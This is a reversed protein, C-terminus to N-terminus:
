WGAARGRRRADLAEAGLDLGRDLGVPRRAQEELLEVEGVGAHDVAVVHVRQPARDAVRECASRGTTTWMWVTLPLPKSGASSPPRSPISFHCAALGPEITSRRGAGFFGTGTLSDSAGSEIAGSFSSFGGGGAGGCYVLTKASARTASASRSGRTTPIVAAIAPPVPGRSARRRADGLLVVVDADGLLVRDEEGGAERDLAGLGDGRDVRGEELAGEVLDDVVDAELAEVDDERHVAGPEDAVVARGVVAGEVDGVEARQGVDHQHRRAVLRHEDVHHARREGMVVPRDREAIRAPGAAPTGSGSRARVLQPQALALHQVLALPDGQEAVAVADLDGVVRGLDEGVCPRSTM